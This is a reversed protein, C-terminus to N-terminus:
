SYREDGFFRNYSLRLLLNQTTPDKRARESLAFILANLDESILDAFTKLRKTISEHEDINDAVNECVECAGFTQQRLDALLKVYLDWNLNSECM